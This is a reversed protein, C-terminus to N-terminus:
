VTPEEDEAELRHLYDMLVKNLEEPTLLNLFNYEPHTENDWEFTLSSTDEDYIITLGDDSSSEM